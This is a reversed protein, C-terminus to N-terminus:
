ENTELKVDEDIALAIGYKAAGITNWGGTDITFRVCRTATLM